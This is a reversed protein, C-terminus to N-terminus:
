VHFFIYKCIYKVKKKKVLYAKNVKNGHQMLTNHKFINYKFIEYLYKM